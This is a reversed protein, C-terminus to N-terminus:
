NDGKSNNIKQKKQLILITNLKKDIRELLDIIKKRKFM